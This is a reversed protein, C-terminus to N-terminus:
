EGKDYDSYTRVLEDLADNVTDEVQEPDYGLSVFQQKVHEIQFGMHYNRSVAQQIDDAAKIDVNKM